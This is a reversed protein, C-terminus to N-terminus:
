NAGTQGGRKPAGLRHTLMPRVLAFGVVSGLFAAVSHHLALWIGGLTVLARVLFSLGLFWRPHRRRSIGQLSWWLGGFFLLGLVAGWAVGFGIVMPDIAM